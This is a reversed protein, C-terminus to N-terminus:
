PSGGFRDWETIKRWFDDGGKKSLAGLLYISCVFLVVALFRFDDRWLRVAIAGGFFFGVLAGCGFRVRGAEKEPDHSMEIQSAGAVM